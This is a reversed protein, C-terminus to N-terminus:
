EPGPSSVDLDVTQGSIRTVKAWTIQGAFMRVDIPNITTIRYTSRGRSGSGSVQYGGSTRQLLEGLKDGFVKGAQQDDLGTVILTITNSGALPPVGPPLM